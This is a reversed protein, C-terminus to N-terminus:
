SYTWSTLPKDLYKVGSNDAVAGTSTDQDSILQVDQLCENSPIGPLRVVSVEKTAENIVVQVAESGEVVDAPDVLRPKVVMNTNRNLAKNRVIVNRYPRSEPAM